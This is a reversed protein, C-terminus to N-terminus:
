ERKKIVISGNGTELKLKIERKLQEKQIYIPFDSNLKGNRTKAYISLERNEPIFANISGNNTELSIDTSEIFTDVDYKISGNNTKANVNGYVSFLFVSGNMTKAKIKGRINKIEIGGNMTKLELEVNKPIWIRYSISFNSVGPPEIRIGNKVKRIQLDTKEVKEKAEEETDAWAKKKAEIKISDKEWSEIKIGGNRTEVFLADEPKFPMTQTMTQALSKKCVNSGYIITCNVFLLVLLMFKFSNM